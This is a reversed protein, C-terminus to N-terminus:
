VAHQLEYGRQAIEHGAAAREETHPARKRLRLAARRREAHDQVTFAVVLELGREPQALEDVHADPADVGPRELVRRGGHLRDVGDVVEEAPQGRALKGGSAM